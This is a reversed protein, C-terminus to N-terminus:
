LLLQVSELLLSPFSFLRWTNSWTVRAAHPLLFFSTRSTVHVSENTEEGFVTSINNHSLFFSSPLRHLLLQKSWVFVLGLGAPLASRTAAAAAMSSTKYFSAFFVFFKKKASKLGLFVLKSDLQPQRFSPPSYLSVGASFFGWCKLSVWDFLPNYRVSIRSSHCTLPLVHIIQHTFSCFMKNKGIIQSMAVLCAVAALSEGGYRDVTQRLNTMKGASSRLKLM